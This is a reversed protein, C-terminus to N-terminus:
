FEKGQVEAIFWLDFQINGIFSGRYEGGGGVEVKFILLSLM